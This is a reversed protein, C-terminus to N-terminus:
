PCFAAMLALLSGFFGMRSERGSQKVGMIGAGFVFLSISIMVLVALFVGTIIETWTTSWILRGSLIHVRGGKGGLIMFVSLYLAAMLIGSVLSKKDKLTNKIVELIVKRDRSIKWKKVATGLLIAALLLSLGDIM